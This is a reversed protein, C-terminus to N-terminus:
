ASTVAIVIRSTVSSVPKLRIGGHASGPKSWRLQSKQSSSFRPEFAARREHSAGMGAGGGSGALGKLGKAGAGFHGANLGNSGRAADFLRLPPLM